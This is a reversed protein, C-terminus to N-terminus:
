QSSSEDSARRWWRHFMRIRMTMRRRRPSVASARVELKWGGVEVGPGYKETLHAIIADDIAEVSM